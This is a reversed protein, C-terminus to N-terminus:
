TNSAATVLGKGNVTVVGSATASGFTGVNANVTALTTAITSSGTGTVDGTLTITSAGGTKNVITGNEKALFEDTGSDPLEALDQVIAQEDETLGQATRAM